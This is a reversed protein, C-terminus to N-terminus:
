KKIELYHIGITPLLKDFLVWKQQRVCESGQDSLLRRGDNECLRGFLPDFM